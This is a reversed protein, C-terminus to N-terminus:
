DGVAEAFGAAGGAGCVAGDAAEGEEAFAGAEGGCSVAGWVESVEVGDRGGTVSITVLFGSTVSFINGSLTVSFGAIETVGGRTVSFAV